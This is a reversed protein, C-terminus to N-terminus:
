KKQYLALEEFSCTALIYFMCFIFVIIQINNVLDITKEDDNNNIQDSEKKICIIMSVILNIFILLELLVRCNIKYANM